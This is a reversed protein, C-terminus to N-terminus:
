GDTDEHREGKPLKILFESGKGPESEVTIEGQHLEVLKKTIALGLGTGGTKRTSSTDVQRFPDFIYALSERDMGHGTDAVTIHFWRGEARTAITVAGSDTFKIANSLLNFLIQKIRVVDVRIEAADGIVELAIGKKDSLVGATKAVERILDSSSLWQKNLTMKGAEIKSIDLIDNILQMLMEGAKECDRAIEAIEDPDPLDEEDLLEDINGLIITLPTRLEHSMTNMFDSKIRYSEEAAEKAQRLNDEAEKRLTIDSVSGVFYRSGEIRMESIALEMPFVSGDKRQGRVERGSGIIKSVGTDIYNMVYRDHNSHYPEPMLLNVNKGLVEDPGYQFIKEATPNLIRIRRNDDIMIIGSRITHILNELENKHRNLAQTRVKVQRRIKDAQGAMARVYGTFLLTFVLGAALLFVATNSGHADFFDRAPLVRIRWHREAVRIVKEYFLPPGNEEFGPSEYLIWPSGSETIDTVRIESQKTEPQFYHIISQKVIDEIRFDGAVYGATERGSATDRVVPALLLFHSTNDEGTLSRVPGTARIDSNGFGSITRFIAPDSALDFGLIRDGRARPELLSIPYYLDARKRGAMGNDGRRECIKFGPHLGQHGSEFAARQSETVAPSWSLWEVAQNNEIFPRTFAQFAEPDVQPASEIFAKLAMIVTMEYHLAEEIEYFKRDGIANLETSAYASQESRYIAFFSVLLVLGSVALMWIVYRKKM